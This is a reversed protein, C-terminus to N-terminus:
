SVVSPSPFVRVHNTGVRKVIIVLEM